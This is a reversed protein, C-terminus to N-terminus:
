QENTIDSVIADIDTIIDALMAKIQIRLRGLGLAGQIDEQDTNALFSSALEHALMSLRALGLHRKNSPEFKPFYVDLIRKHVDRSGFLGKTQFDKIIGNPVSSNLFAALYHAERADTVCLYYAKSDVMFDLDYAERRVVAANADKASATYIVLYPTDINQILLKSQYNLYDELSISQNKETRLRHWDNEANQFWNAAHSYGNRLLSDADHLHLSRRGKADLHVTIPLAVLVPKHLAFPFINRSLATRFLFSSEIRGTLSVGKWPLKADPQISPSTMISLVRDDWDDPQAGNLEIFYFARPVITAGQRFRSKYPNVRQVGSSKKESFASSRGLRVYHWKTRKESISPLASSLNCNHAPLRGSFTRGPLGTSPLTRVVSANSAFFVCSPIRFLPTVGMLDWIQSLRFGKARTTRINDHHDANLFSRPLVFAIAGDQKLFYSSCHALFISAIELHPFNAVRQPRIDYKSALTQLQDQYEENKISSYTFWPPNGIVYDFSKSLFYPKYLNQLIFKWISDRGREKALKLCEYIRYYSDIMQSSLRDSDYRRRLNKELTHRSVKGKHMGHNALDECVEVAIDFLQVDEFLDTNLLLKDKDITMVFEGGFLGIIGEPSLLSNALLINFHIPRKARTVDRGLALLMTTKAIQVSLPHVDIGYVTSSIEEVTISPSLSKKRHIVARLFSGSGCAPDLVKDAPLIEFENVIRECLWDPTYYEGLAHRTDLDILEQYVGKLIDEDVSSFDYSSIEQSIVRFVRILDRVCSSSGVWHFFDNSVFNDINYKQFISGDIIGRVESDEIYDDNSVVAYALMKAFVSLYTHILFISESGDFSGYAVSLFSKWQEYSVQVDPQSRVDQFHTTLERYSDIFVSSQYGFSEEIRRLTAKQQVEKFLFRDLWFFFDEANDESLTFSASLIEDLVLEDERLRELDGLQYVAPAFVRWNIFDSAILIYNYGHGSNIQGLLYGALQVTAHRLTAKLDNEFEIIVNNYLTDASGKHLKDKRPINLVTREAGDSIADVIKLISKDGIYLRNLLDKFAEKKTYEKNANRVKRLYAIILDNRNTAM